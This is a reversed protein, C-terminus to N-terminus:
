VSASADIHFGVWLERRRLADQAAVSHDIAPIVPPIRTPCQDQSQMRVSRNFVIPNLIESGVRRGATVGAGNHISAARARNFNRMVSHNAGSGMCNEALLSSRGHGYGAVYQQMIPRSNDDILRRADFDRVVRYAITCSRANLDEPRIPACNGAVSKVSVLLVELDVASDNAAM